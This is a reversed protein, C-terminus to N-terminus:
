AFSYSPFSNEASLKSKEFMCLMSCRCFFNRPCTSSYFCLFASSLLNSFQRSIRLFTLLTATISHQPPYKENPINSFSRQMKWLDSWLYTARFFAPWLCSLLSLLLPFVIQEIPLWILLSWSFFCWSFTYFIKSSFRASISFDSITNRCAGPSLLSISRSSFSGSQFKLCLSLDIHRM